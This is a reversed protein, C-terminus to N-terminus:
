TIYPFPCGLCWSHACPARGGSTVLQSSCQWSAYAVGHRWSRLSIGPGFGQAPIYVIARAWRGKRPGPQLRVGICTM